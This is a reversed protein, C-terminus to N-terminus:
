TSFIANVGFGALNDLQQKAEDETWQQWVDPFIFAGVIRGMECRKPWWWLSTMAPKQELLM